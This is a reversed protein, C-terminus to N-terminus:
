WGKRFTGTDYPNNSTNKERGSRDVTKDDEVRRIGKEPDLKWSSTDYPNEDEATEGELALSGTDEFIPHQPEPVNRPIRRHPKIASPADVTYIRTDEEDERKRTFFKLWKM